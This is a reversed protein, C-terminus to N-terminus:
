AMRKTSAKRTTITERGSRIREELECLVALFIIFAMLPIGLLLRLIFDLIDLIRM